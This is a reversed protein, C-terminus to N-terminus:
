TVAKPDSTVEVPWLVKRGIEPEATVVYESSALGEVASVTDLVMMCVLIGVLVAEQM